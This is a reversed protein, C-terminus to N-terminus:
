ANSLLLFQTIQEICGFKERIFYDVKDNTSTLLITLYYSDIKPIRNINTLANALHCPYMKLINNTNTLTNALHYFNLILLNNTNAM